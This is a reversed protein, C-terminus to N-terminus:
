KVEKIRQANVRIWDILGPNEDKGPQSYYDLLAKGTLARSQAMRAFNLAHFYHDTGQRTEVWFATEEGTRRNKKTVRTLSRLQNYFGPVTEINRPLEVVKNQIDSVLYDLSITRDLKVEYKINDWRFYEKVTFKSSPYTAAFIRRPFKEILEKVLGQEPLKDVVAIKIDYAGMVSEISNAPGFFKSVIGAWVVRYGEGKIKQVVVVNHVKSGIDIGAFCSKKSEIPIEYEKKCANLESIQVVQGSVEYPLGLDQNYFQQLASFGILKASRYKKVIDAITVSPNYMGNVRYGHVDSSPNQAEWRGDVIRKMKKKCQRCVCTKNKYNINKFFDLEQWLGCNKCKIQWVRQDSDLYAQHIAHKPLTPTSIERRWKLDSANMRKDIFPVNREDFRDREDLFVCDADVSIIQKENTSGRFYIDGKGIKKLGLTEVRKGQVSEVRDKLYDSMNLVPNLRAQVFEQLQKQAPFTNGTWYISGKRRALFTGNDTRPCWVIGDYDIHKRHLKRVSINNSLYLQMNSSGDKRKVIRTSIGALSCVMTWIDIRQKNKQTFARVLNGRKTKRRWGDADLSTEIFINLQNKTLSLIFEISPVKNPMVLRIKRAVEGKFMLQVCNSDNNSLHEKYSLKNLKLCRKIKQVKDHNVKESQTIGILSPGIGRIGKGQAKAFHGDTWVWACLEVFQNSYTKDKPLDACSVARPIYKDGIFMDKTQTFYFGQKKHKNIWGDKVIWRHNNTVLASFKNTELLILKTKVKKTFLEKSKKWESKGTIKNMTLIVEGDRIQNFRLWGRKSLLETKEDVCYLVNKGLIDAIWVAESIGRESLGMQSAKTYVINHYQDTYIQVLYKRDSFKLPKGKSTLWVAKVWTFYDSLKEKKFKQQAKILLQKELV